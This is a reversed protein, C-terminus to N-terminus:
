RSEIEFIADRFRYMTLRRIWNECNPIDQHDLYEQALWEIYAGKAEHVLPFGGGIRPNIEILQLPSRDASRMLQLNIPGLFGTISRLLPELTKELEPLFETRAQVSEGGDVVLRRHPISCKATEDRDFYLNVTYEEGSAVQQIIWDRPIEDIRPADKAFRMQMGGSGRRPKAIFPGPHQEIFSTIGDKLCTAPTAIQHTKFHQFALWKDGCLEIAKKSSVAAHCGIAELDGSIKSLPLLDSERTPIILGIKQHRVLDSLKGQWDPHSSDPLIHFRDAIFRTPLNENRDSIIFDCGRKVASKKAIRATAVKAGGSLLLINRLRPMASDGM